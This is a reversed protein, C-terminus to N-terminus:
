KENAVQMARQAFGAILDNTRQQQGTSGNTNSKFIVENEWSNNNLYTAPNKRFTKEPTSLVYLKLHEMIKERAGQDIKKWKKECKDRDQKKDYANWFDEFTPWILVDAKNEEEKKEEERREEGQMDLHLANAHANADSWRKNAAFRARETKEIYPMLYQILKPSFFGVKDVDFLGYDMIVTSIKEKPVRLEFELESLASLPYRFDTQDRLIELLCFYIGYGELGLVRRLKLLKVDNRANSYHPFYYADKKM